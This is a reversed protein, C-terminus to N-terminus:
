DPDINPISLERLDNEYNALNGSAYDSSISNRTRIDAILGLTRTVPSKNADQLLQARQAEDLEGQLTITREFVDRAGDEAHHYSVAVELHSLPYERRRAYFGLTMATCTALSASLLEYPDAGTTTGSRGGVVFEAAGARANFAGSALDGAVVAQVRDRPEDNKNAM